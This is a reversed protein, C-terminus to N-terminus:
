GLYADAIVWGESTLILTVAHTLDEEFGSQLKSAIWGREQAVFQLTSAAGACWVGGADTSSGNLVEPIESPWILTESTASVDIKPGVSAVLNAVDGPSPLSESAESLPTGSLPASDPATSWACSSLLLAIGILLSSELRRSRTM